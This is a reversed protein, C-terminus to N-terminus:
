QSDAAGPSARAVSERGAEVNRKRENGKESFPKTAAAAGDPTIHAIIAPEVQQATSAQTDAPSLPPPELLEEDPKEADSLYNTVYLSELNTCYQAISILVEDSALSWVLLNRLRHMSGVVSADLRLNTSITHLKTCRELFSILVDRRVSSVKNMRVTEITSHSHDALHTLSAGTLQPCRAIVISSLCKLHQAILLVGDDTVERNCALNLHAIFPCCASVSAMFENGLQLGASGLCRVLPCKQMAPTVQTESIGEGTCSDFDVHTLGESGCLSVGLADNGCDVSDFSLLKLRVLKIHEFHSAKLGFVAKLRLELLQSNFWLLETFSETAPSRSYAVSVLSQCYMATADVIGEKTVALISLNRVSKEWSRLCMTLFRREISSAIEVSSVKLQRKVYWEVSQATITCVKGKHVCFSSTLWHLFCERLKHSCFASDLNTLMRLDLWGGLLEGALRVPLKALMMM